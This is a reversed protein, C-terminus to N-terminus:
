SPKLAQFGAFLLNKEESVIATTGGKEAALEGAQVLASLDDQGLNNQAQALLEAPAGCGAWPLAVALGYFFSQGVLFDTQSLEKILELLWRRSATADADPLIFAVEGSDLRAALDISRLSKQALQGFAAWAESSLLPLELLVLSLPREWRDVRALEQSLASLFHGQHFLGSEREVCCDSLQSATKM